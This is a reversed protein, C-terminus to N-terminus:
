YQKILNLLVSDTLFQIVYTSFVIPECYKAPKQLFDELCTLCKVYKWQNSKSWSLYV